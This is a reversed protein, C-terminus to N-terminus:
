RLDKRIEEVLKELYRVDSGLEKALGVLVAKTPVVKGNIMRLLEMPDIGLKAGLNHVNTDRAVCLAGIHKSFEYPKPEPM